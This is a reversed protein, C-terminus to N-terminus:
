PTEPALVTTIWAQAVDPWIPADKPLESRVGDVRREDKAFGVIQEAIARGGEPTDPNGDVFFGVREAFLGERVIVPICGAACSEKLSICDTEGPVNTAYLHYASMRKERVITQVDRRGHHMVNTTRAISGLVANMLDKDNCGYYVHLEATPEKEVIHPWVHNLISLLGREYANCYCFRMPIRPVEESREFFVDRVGNSVVYMKVSADLRNEYGRKHFQSKFAYRAEPYMNSFKCIIEHFEPNGVSVSDHLDVVLVRAEVKRDSNLMPWVGYIRWLIVVDFKQHRRFYNTHVYDVDDIRKAGFSFLGFVAVRKGKRAWERSLAVIAQESGGLDKDTPDWEKVYFGGTYYVIDYACASPPGMLDEYDALVPDPLVRIGPLADMTQHLGYHACLHILSKSCMNWPHAIGVFNCMQPHLRAIPETLGNLFSYEEGHPVSEDYAHNTLYVRKYAMCNNTILTSSGRAYQFACKWDLDYYYPKTCGAILCESNKLTDAVYQVYGPGYYDDDDIWVLVDGTARRNALNRLAGITKKRGGDNRVFVIPINVGRDIWICRLRDEFTDDPEQSGDVVIWEGVDKSTQAAVYKACLVFFPLRQSQTVTLLSIM